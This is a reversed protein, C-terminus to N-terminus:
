EFEKEIREIIEDLSPFEEDAEEVQKPNMRWIRENHVPPGGGRPRFKKKNPDYGSNKSWQYGVRCPKEPPAKCQGCTNERYAIWKIVTEHEKQVEDIVKRIRDLDQVLM